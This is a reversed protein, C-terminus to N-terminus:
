SRHLRNWLLSFVYAVVFGIVSTVAILIVAIGLNFPAIVYVPKIFHMWFIFDILSQAWGTAVLLTWCLHWAGILAGLAIGARVPHIVKMEIEEVL